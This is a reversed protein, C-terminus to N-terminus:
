GKADPKTDQDKGFGALGNVIEGDKKITVAKADKSLLYQLSPVLKTAYEEDSSFIMAPTGDRGTDRVVITVVYSNPILNHLHEIMSQTVPGLVKEIYRIGSTVADTKDTKELGLLKDVLNEVNISDSEKREEEKM